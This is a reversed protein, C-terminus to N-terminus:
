PKQLNMPLSTWARDAWFFQSMGAGPDAEVYFSVASVECGLLPLMLQIPGFVAADLGSCHRHHVFRLRLMM